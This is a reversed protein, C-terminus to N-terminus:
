NTETKNGENTGWHWYEYELQNIGYKSANDKMWKWTASENLECRKSAAKATKCRGNLRDSGTSYGDFNFDIAFGGQHNSYGPRATFGADCSSKDDNCLKQQQAMTRFTSFEGNFVLTHGAKKAAAALDLFKQSVVSNVKAKLTGDVSKITPIACLRIDFPKGNSYATAKDLDETGIACPTDYTSAPTDTDTGTGESSASSASCNAGTNSTGGSGTPSPPTGGGSWGNLVAGARAAYNERVSKVLSLQTNLYKVPDGGAKPDSSAAWALNGPYRSYYTLTEMFKEATVSKDTLALILRSQYSNSVMSRATAEVGQDFTPYNMTEDDKGNNTVYPVGGLDPDNLKTNFPNFTGQNNGIGGGEQGAFAILAVVHERTAVDSDLKGTKIAIAKLVHTVFQEVIYPGSLGSKYIGQSGAISITGSPTKWGCCKDTVAANESVSTDSVSSSENTFDYHWHSTESNRKGGYKAAAADLIKTSTSNRKDIDVALGKYHNSGAGSHTKDTLANVMIKENQNAVDLIFRLIDPNLDAEKNPANAATTYAKKGESIAVVVDRTNVGNNEWYSINKSALMKAALDKVSSDAITTSNNNTSPITTTTSDTSDCPVLCPDFWGRKNIVPGFTCEPAAVAPRMNTLLCLVGTTIIFFQKLTPSFRRMTRVKRGSVLAM